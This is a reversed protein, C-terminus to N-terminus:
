PMTFPFQVSSFPDYRFATEYDGYALRTVFPTSVLMPSFTVQDIAGLEVDDPDFAGFPRGRGPLIAFFEVVLEEDEPNFDTPLQAVRNGARNLIEFAATEANFRLDVREKELTARYRAEKVALALVEEVPVEDAREFLNDVNIVVISAILGVMAIVLVLEM